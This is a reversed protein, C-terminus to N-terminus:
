IVVHGDRIYFLLYVSSRIDNGLASLESPTRNHECKWYQGHKHLFCHYHGSFPTDGLHVVGASLVYPHWATHLESGTFVPIRVCPHIHALRQDKYVEGIMATFICPPRTFAHVHVQTSWQSWQRVMASVGVDGEPM